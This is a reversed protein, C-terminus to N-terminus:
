IEACIWETVLKPGANRELATLGRDLTAFAQRAAAPQMARALRDLTDGMDGNALLRRDAGAHLVAVDRVISSAMHLLAQM